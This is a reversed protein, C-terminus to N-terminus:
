EYKLEGYSGTVRNNRAEMITWFPEGLYSEDPLAVSAIRNGMLVNISPLDEITLTLIDTHKAFIDAGSQYGCRSVIIGTINGIDRIKSEFEQIQGKSVPNKWDKCEIAVRHRVGAKDFEYYVDIEHSVGSKGAMLVRHGVVVGEDKM